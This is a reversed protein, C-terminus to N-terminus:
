AKDATACFGEVSKGALEGGSDLICKRYNYEAAGPLRGRSRCHYRTRSRDKGTAWVQKGRGQVKWAASAGFAPEDTNRERQACAMQVVVAGAEGKRQM